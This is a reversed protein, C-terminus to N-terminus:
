DQTRKLTLKCGPKEMVLIGEDGALLQAIQSQPIEVEIIIPDETITPADM